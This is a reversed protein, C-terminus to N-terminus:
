LAVDGSVNHLSLHRLLPLLDRVMEAGDLEPSIQVAALVEELQEPWQNQSVLYVLDGWQPRDTRLIEIIFIM